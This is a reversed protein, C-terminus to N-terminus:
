RIQGGCSTCIDRANVSDPDVGIKLSSWRRHKFRVRLPRCCKKCIPVSPSGKLYIFDKSTIIAAVSTNVEEGCVTCPVMDKLFGM